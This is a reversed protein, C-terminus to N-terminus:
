RNFGEDYWDGTIPRPGVEFVFREAGSPKRRISIDGRRALMGRERTINVPRGEAAAATVAERVTQLYADIRDISM